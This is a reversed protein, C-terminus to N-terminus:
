SNAAVQAKCSLFTTAMLIYAIPILIDSACHLNQILYNWPSFNYYLLYSIPAYPARVCYGVLIIASSIIALMAFKKVHKNNKQPFLAFAAILGLGSYLVFSWFNFSVEILTYYFPISNRDFNPNKLAYNSTSFGLLEFSWKANMLFLIAFAVLLLIPVISNKGRVGYSFKGTALLIGVALLCIWPLLRFLYSAFRQVTNYWDGEVIGPFYGSMLPLLLIAVAVSLGIGSSRWREPEAFIEPATKPDPGYRNEGGQGNTCMLVIFWIHACILVGIGVFFGAKGSFCFSVALIAALLLVLWVWGSRGIDHLRRVSIAMGPLAIAIAYSIEVSYFISRWDFFPLARRLIEEVIFLLVFFLCNVLTFMWYEKRHARGSFDAYHRLAKIYWKM